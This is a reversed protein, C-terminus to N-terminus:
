SHINLAYTFVYEVKMPITGNFSCPSSLQRKSCCEHRYDYFKPILNLPKLGQFAIMTPECVNKVPMWPFLGPIDKLDANASKAILGTIVDFVRFSLVYNIGIDVISVSM